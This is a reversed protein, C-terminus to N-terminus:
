TGGGEGTALERDGGLVRYLEIRNQVAILSIAVEQQRASYLSRQADLSSLFSDIGGRYRADTLNATDAAADTNERAARQREEITGHTALADAVERFATQIAKEYSALAADKRAENVAVNGRAAGGDNASSDRSGGSSSDRTHTASPPKSSHPVSM